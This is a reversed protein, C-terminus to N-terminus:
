EQLTRAPNNGRGKGSPGGTKSPGNPPTITAVASLIKM